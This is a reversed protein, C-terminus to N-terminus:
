ALHADLWELLGDADAFDTVALAAGATRLAAADYKGTAVGIVPLGLAVGAAVDCPTDGVLCVADAACEVGAAQAAALAARAIHERRAHRDGFGGFGFYRDFGVSALKLYACARINGTVLGLAFGDAALRALLPGAGAVARAPNGRLLDRLEEAIFAFVRQIEEEALRLRRAAMVQELVNRDTNGAFSLYNLEDFTGTARALGRVFAQRGFGHTDLLTGDIDFLAMRKRTAKM